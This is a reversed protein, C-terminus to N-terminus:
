CSLADIVTLRVSLRSSPLPPPRARAATTRSVLATILEAQWRTRRPARSPKLLGDQQMGEAQDRQEGGAMDDLLDVLV